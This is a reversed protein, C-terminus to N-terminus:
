DYPIEKKQEPLDERLCFVAHEFLLVGGATMFMTVHAGYFSPKHDIYHSGKSPFLTYGSISFYHFCENFSAFPGNKDYNVIGCLQGGVDLIIPFM